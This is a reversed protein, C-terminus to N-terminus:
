TYQPKLEGLLKLINGTEKEIELTSGNRTEARLTEKEGNYVVGLFKLEKKWEGDYKVYGSKEPHIKIGRKEDGTVKIPKNSMFLGDDAYFVSTGQIKKQIRRIWKDMVLETLIPSTNAGQPLNKLGEKDWNPAEGFLYERVEKPDMMFLM